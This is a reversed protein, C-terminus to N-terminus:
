NRKLVQFPSYMCITRVWESTSSTKHTETVKQNLETVYKSTIVQQCVKKLDALVVQQLM